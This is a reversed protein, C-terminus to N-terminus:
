RPQRFVQTVWIQDDSRVVGIGVARKTHDLMNARHPASAMLARHVARPTAGFGVNEAISSWCCLVSFSRTHFLVRHGSMAASHRRAYATLKARTRLPALGNEERAENLRRLLRKEAMETTVTVSETGVAWASTAGVLGTFSSLVLASLLCLVLSRRHM